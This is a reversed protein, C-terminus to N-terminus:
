EWNDLIWHALSVAREPELEVSGMHFKGDPWVTAMGENWSPREKEMGEMAKKAKQISESWRSAVSM